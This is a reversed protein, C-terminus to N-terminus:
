VGAASTSDGCLVRHSGLIWLDGVRTVAHEPAAPAEEEDNEDLDAFLYEDIEHPDFGTLNLDFDLAKLDGLELAVVEADFDAWTASRNVLLRFAKVKAENWEDCLVVPVEEMGAKHAARLRLHGDVIEGNSRALIPVKFGYENISAVM